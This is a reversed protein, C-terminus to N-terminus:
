KKTHLNDICLQLLESNEYINGVYECTTQFWSVTQEDSLAHCPFPYDKALDHQWVKVPPNIAFGGQVKWIRFLIDDYQESKFLDDQFAEKGDKYTLNVFQLLQHEKYARNGDKCLKLPQLIGNSCIAIVEPFYMEKDVNDWAKFKVVAKNMKIVTKLKMLKNAFLMKQKM